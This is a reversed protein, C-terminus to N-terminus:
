EKMEKLAVEYLLYFYTLPFWLSFLFTILADLYFSDFTCCCFIELHIHLYGYGQTFTNVRWSSLSFALYKLASEEYFLMGEQIFFHIQLKVDCFMICLDFGDLFNQCNHVLNSGRHTLLTPGFMKSSPNYQITCDLKELVIYFLLYQSLCDSFTWFYSNSHYLSVLYTNYGQWFVM